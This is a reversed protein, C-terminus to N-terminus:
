FFSLLSSHALTAIIIIFFISFSPPVCWNSTHKGGDALGSTPSVYVAQAAPVTLGRSAFFQVMADLAPRMSRLWDMDGSSTVAFYVAIPLHVDEDTLTGWPCNYFGSSAYRQTLGFRAGDALSCSHVFQYDGGGSEEPTWGCRVFFSLEQQMAAFAVSGADLTSAMMPWWAMEHLCPVSAPNNGMLWGLLQYQTNFLTNMAADLTANPLAVSLRPFPGAGRGGGTPVDTEVQHLVMRLTQTAGVPLWPRGRGGARPDISEFGINCDATGDGFPKSFSWLAPLPAGNLEASGEVIFLAGSPTFRVYQRPNPSLYEYFANGTDFGGTSTENLFMDLDVFSPIQQSHIPLGGTTQLSLGLRDVALEPGQELGVRQVTWAFASANLLTLTWNEAALPAGGPTLALTLGTVTATTATSAVTCGAGCTPALAGAHSGQLGAPVLLTTGVQTPSGALAFNVTSAGAGFFSFNAISAHGAGDVALGVTLFPSSIAASRSPGARVWADHNSDQWAIARCDASISGWIGGCCGFYLSSNSPYYTGPVGQWAGAASAFFRFPPAASVGFVSVSTDGGLWGGSINCGATAALLQLMNWFFFCLAWHAVSLIM